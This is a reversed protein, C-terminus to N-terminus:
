LSRAPFSNAKASLPVTGPRDFAIGAGKTSTSLQCHSLVRPIIETHRFRSISRTCPRNEVEIVV